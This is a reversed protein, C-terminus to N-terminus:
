FVDRERERKREREMPASDDTSYIHLLRRGEHIFRKRKRSSDSLELICGCASSISLYHQKNTSSETVEAGSDFMYMYM